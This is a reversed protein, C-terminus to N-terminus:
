VFQVFSPLYIVVITHHPLPRHVLVFYTHYPEAVGVLLYVVRALWTLPLCCLALALRLWQDDVTACGHYPITHCFDNKGLFKEIFYGCCM